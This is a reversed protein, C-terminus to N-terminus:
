PSVVIENAPCISEDHVAPADRVPGRQTLVAAGTFRNEMDLHKPLREARRRRSALGRDRHPGEANMSRRNDNIKLKGRGDLMTLQNTAAMAEARCEVKPL